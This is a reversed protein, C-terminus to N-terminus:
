PPVFFMRGVFEVPLPGAVYLSPRSAASFFVCKGPLFFTGRHELKPAFFLRLLSGLFEFSSPVCVRLGFTLVRHNGEEQFPSPGLCSFFSGPRSGSFISLEFLLVLLVFSSFSLLFACFPPPNLRFVLFEYKLLRGRFRCLWFLPPPVQRPSASWDVM